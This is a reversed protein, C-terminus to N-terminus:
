PFEKLASQLYKNLIESVFILSNSIGVPLGNIISNSSLNFIM